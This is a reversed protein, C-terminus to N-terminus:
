HRVEPKREPAPAAAGMRPAVGLQSLMTLLDFYHHTETIKGNRQRAVLAARLRGRKNTPPIAGFPGDLQGRHTGEWEIEAVMADPTEFGGIVRATLDPFARKWRQVTRVYEDPGTVRQQTGVEDYTVDIALDAKYANWDGASLADLHRKILDLM